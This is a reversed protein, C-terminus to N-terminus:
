VEPLRESEGEAFVCQGDIYLAFTSLSPFWRSRVEVACPLRATDPGLGFEIRPLVYRFGLNWCSAALKGDVLISERLFSGGRYEITVELPGSIQLVRRLRGRRIVKIRWATTTEVRSEVDSQPAAYPNPTIM